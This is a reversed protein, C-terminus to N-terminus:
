ADRPSRAWGVGIRRALGALELVGLAGRVEGVSLGAARALEVTGAPSRLPLADLLRHSAWDLDDGDHREATREPPLDEGARAALEMVDAADTVCVAAGERLLRHCGASAMSTVPGPVAGLLRSLAAAHHATSLAGSRWAAEVVVTARSVAAILRNRM